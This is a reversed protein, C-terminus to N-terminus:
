YRIKWKSRRRLMNPYITGVPEVEHGSPKGCWTYRSCRGITDTCLVPKSRPRNLVTASPPSEVPATDCSRIREKGKEPKSCRGDIKHAPLAQLVVRLRSPGGDEQLTRFIQGVDAHVDYSYSLFSLHSISSRFRLTLYRHVSAFRFFTSVARKHSTCHSPHRMRYCSRTPRHDTPSPLRLITPRM